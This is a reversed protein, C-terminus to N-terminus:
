LQWRFEWEAAVRSPICLGILQQRKKERTANFLHVVQPLDLSEASEVGMWVDNLQFFDDQLHSCQPRSAAHASNRPFECVRIVTRFKSGIFNTVPHLFQPDSRDSVERRGATVPMGAHQNEDTFQHIHVDIFQDFTLVGWM